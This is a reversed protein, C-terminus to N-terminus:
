VNTLGQEQLLQQQAVAEDLTPAGDLFGGSVDGQLDRHWRLFEDQVIPNALAFVEGAMFGNLIQLVVDPRGVMPSVVIQGPEQGNGYLTLVNKVTLQVTNLIEDMDLAFDLGNKAAFLKLGEVDNIGLQVLQLAEQKVATKSRPNANQVGFRIRSLNRLPNDELSVMGERDIVVGALDLTLNEVPLRRGTDLLMAIAQQVASRYINGFLREIAQSAVTMPRRLSEDLANLAVASDIRGKEQALQGVPNLRAGQEGFYAAARIPSDGTNVPSFTFPRFDGETGMLDPMYKLIKIGGPVLDQMATREDYQGRPIVLVPNRDQEYINKAIHNELREARRHQGFRVHFHGAGYFSGNEYFRAYNLPRYVERDTFDWHAFEYGGSTITYSKATNRPGGLWTEAVEVLDTAGGTPGQGVTNTLRGTINLNDGPGRHSEIDIAEGLFVRYIKAGSGKKFAANAVRAGFVEKLRERSVMRRRIVGSVNLYNNGAAPFPLLETPHVVEVDAGFGMAPHDDLTVNLGVMGFATFIFNMEARHPEIVAPSVVGDALVQAMGTERVAALSRGTREALPRLDASGLQGMITQIEFLLSEDPYEYNGNKDVFDWEVKGQRHDLTTFHRIGRFYHTALLTRMRWLAAHVEERQIHQDILRARKERDDPLMFTNRM